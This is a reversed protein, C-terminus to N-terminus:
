DNITENALLYADDADPWAIQDIATQAFRLAAARPRRDGHKLAWTAHRVLRALETARGLTLAFRRAGSEVARVDKQTTKLWEAASRYASLAVEGATELAPDSSEVWGHAKEILTTLSSGKALARLTDLALVNTTGEWISLVQADRLLSPLGTDELYGAGGFSELIESTVHVAQRGTTLKAIPTMLRLLASEADDLEDHEQKGLMEVIWFTLHFAADLEAQLDALTDVHLPKDKLYAGFAFRRKAYDRALAMGRRMFSVATVANWTRTISLMPTINRVGHTKEMVLEAKTGRLMLEATPLKRTGLKDKLRNLEINKLKGEDDRCEIYFLALGHGGEPNGEPRGLTLAMQSTAASTFWKRGYLKWEGNEEIAKTETQGVDSGGTSETMWQGSTWFQDPDRSTLHPVARDILAQNGSAILTRAAGDTMALPCSYVDTSPSFLYVLAFQHVRALAGFRPEYAAAVVGCTAAIPEARKWVETLEIHDIREGWADWQTLTPEQEYTARSLAYMRVAIEGMDRLEPEIAELMEKPLAHRLYGRLLADDEYQNSLEPAPQNFPEFDM